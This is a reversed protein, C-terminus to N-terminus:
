GEEKYTPVRLLSILENNLENGAPFGEEYGKKYSEDAILQSTWSFFDDWQKKSDYRDTM